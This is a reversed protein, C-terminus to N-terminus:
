EAQLSDLRARTQQRLNASLQADRTWFGDPDLYVCDGECVDRALQSRPVQILDSQYELLAYEGEFRDVVATAARHTDSM